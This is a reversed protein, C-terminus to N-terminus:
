IKNGATSGQNFSMPSAGNLNQAAIPGKNFRNCIYLYM